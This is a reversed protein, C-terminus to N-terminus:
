RGRGLLYWARVRRQLAGELDKGLSYGLVASTGGTGSCDSHAGRGSNPRRQLLRNQRLSASRRCRQTSKSSCTESPSM